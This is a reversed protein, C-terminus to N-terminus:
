RGPLTYSAYTVNDRDQTNWAYNLTQDRGPTGGLSGWYAFPYLGWALPTGSVVVVVHGHPDPHAQESGKLGALVFLGAAAAAAATPGDAVPAWAGGGRLTDVIDDALGTLPVGLLGAVAKAFGSCDNSHAAYSAECAAKLPDLNGNM